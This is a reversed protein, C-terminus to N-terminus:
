PAMVQRNEGGNLVIRSLSEDKSEMNDPDIL